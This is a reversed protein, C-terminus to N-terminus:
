TDGVSAGYITADSLGSAYVSVDSLASAYVSADSISIDGKVEAVIVSSSTTLTGAFSLVGALIKSVVRSIAGSATL